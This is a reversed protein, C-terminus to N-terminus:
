IVLVGPWLYRYMSSSWCVQGCTGTCTPHGACRAVLVQVHQIVLVGPWLYRYMNSSWCVQGCTGTCTPHGVCRAVIVQVHLIVLVGPWLYRYMNSSWCVQGCTGTCTPHSACRAMFVQVHQIVLVGPWLYRYMYSSWCVQGCTGTCTPHGAGCIGTCTPHGACRAVLVQVHINILMRLQTLFVEMVRKIDVHVVPLTTSSGNASVPTNYILLGGWRPSLFANTAVQKGACVHIYLPSVTQCCSVM